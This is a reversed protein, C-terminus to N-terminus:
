STQVDLTLLQIFDQRFNNPNLGQSRNNVGIQLTIRHASAPPYNKTALARFLKSSTWGSRATYEIKWSTADRSAVQEPWREHPAVGEGITYSNGWALWILPEKPSSSLYSTILTLWFTLYNLLRLRPRVKTPFTKSNMLIMLCFRFYKKV